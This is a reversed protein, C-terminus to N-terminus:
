VTEWASALTMCTDFSGVLDQPLIGLMSVCQSHFSEDHVGLPLGVFGKRKGFHGELTVHLRM